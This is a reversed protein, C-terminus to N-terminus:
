SPVIGAVTTHPLAAAGGLVVYGIMTAATVPLVNWRRVAGFWAIGLGLVLGGVVALVPGAGGWVPGLGIAALVVLVAIVGLDTLGALSRARRAGAIGRERRERERRRARAAAVADEQERLASGASRGDRLTRRSPSPPALTATMDDGAAHGLAPGRPGRRRPHDSRRALAAGCPCRSRLAGRAVARRAPPADGRPARARAPRDSRLAARRGLRRPGARESRARARRATRGAARAR